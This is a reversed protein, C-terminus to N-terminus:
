RPACATPSRRRGQRDQQGRRPDARRGGERPRRGRPDAPARRRRRRGRDRRHGDGPRRPCAHRHVGRPGPHGPLHDDQRGPPGPLRRHAAHHRRGRGRRRRDRPDRGAAVDQRPRRSGHDHGGAPAARPGRRRGRLSPEADADEAATVIEIEKDFEDALVQIADDSLTQTLTAMEGLGMLKKIIEAVPSASRVGRRGQGDLRLRGPHCRGEALQRGARRAGRLHWASAPRRAAAAPAAAPRWRSRRWPRRSRRPRRARRAAQSDIVVRRVGGASGPAREGQLSSRTPRASAAAATARRAAPKPKAKPKPPTKPQSTRRARPAPPATASAPASSSSRLPPRPSPPATPPRRPSPSAPSRPTPSSRTWPPRPLRSMSAMRTSVSSSRPM